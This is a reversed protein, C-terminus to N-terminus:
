RETYAALGLYALPSTLSDRRSVKPRGLISPLAFNLLLLGIRREGLERDQGM